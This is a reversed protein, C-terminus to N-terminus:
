HTLLLIIILSSHRRVFGDWIENKVTLDKMM